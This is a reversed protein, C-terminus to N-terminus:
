ASGGIGHELGRQAGGRRKSAKGREFLLGGMCIPTISSGRAAERERVRQCQCGKYNFACLTRREPDEEAVPDEKSVSGVKPAFDEEAVPDEKTEHGEKSVAKPEREKEVVPQPVRMAEALRDNVAYCPVVRAVPFHETGFSERLVADFSVASSEGHGLWPVLLNVVGNPRTAEQVIAEDVTAPDGPAKLEALKARVLGHAAEPSASILSDLQTLFSIM